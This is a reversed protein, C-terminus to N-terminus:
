FETTSSESFSDDSQAETGYTNKQDLLDFVNKKQILITPEEEKSLYNILEDDTQAKTKNLDLNGIKKYSHFRDKKLPKETQINLHAHLRGNKSGYEFVYSLYTIRLAPRAAIAEIYGQISRKITKINKGEAFKDSYTLTMLYIFSDSTNVRRQFSLYKNFNSKFLNKLWTCNLISNQCDKFHEVTNEKRCCLM